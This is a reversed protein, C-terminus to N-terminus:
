SRLGPRGRDRSRPEKDETSLGHFAPVEYNLHRSVLNTNKGAEILLVKHGKRALKSAVPGGGAGSGIVIFEFEEDAAPKRSRLVRDCGTSYFAMFAALQAAWRSFERRTMQGNGPWVPKKPPKM